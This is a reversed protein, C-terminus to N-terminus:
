FNEKVWHFLRDFIPGVIKLEDSNPWMSCPFVFVLFPSKRGSKELKDQLYTEFSRAFLESRSLWYSANEKWLIEDVTLLRKSFAMFYHELDDSITQLTNSKKELIKHWRSMESLFRGKRGCNYGVLKEYLANDIFHAWEHALSGFGGSKTLNIIRQGPEYHALGKRKGRAGIALALDCRGSTMEIPIELTTSLDDFAQCTAELFKKREKEGVYNGWQLGRLKVTYLLYDEQELQSMFSFREGNLQGGYVSARGFTNKRKTSKIGFAANIGKNNYVIEKAANVAADTSDQALKKFKAMKRRTTNNCHYSLLGNHYIRIFNAMGYEENRFFEHYLERVKERFNAIVETDEIASYFTSEAYSKIKFYSGVYKQRMKKDMTGKRYPPRSPMSKLCFFSALILLYNVENIEPFQPPDSKLLEERCVRAEATGNQEAEDLNLHHNRLHRASNAIDEGLNTFRSKRAFVYPRTLNPHLM